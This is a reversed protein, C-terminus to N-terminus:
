SEQDQVSEDDTSVYHIFGPPALEEGPSVEMYFSCSHEDSIEFHVELLYLPGTKHTHSSIEKM